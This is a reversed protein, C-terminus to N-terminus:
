LGCSIRANKPVCLNIHVVAVCTPQRLVFVSKLKYVVALIECRLASLWDTERHWQAFFRILVLHEEREEVSQHRLTPQQVNRFAAPLYVLAVTHRQQEGAALVADSRHAHHRLLFGVARRM